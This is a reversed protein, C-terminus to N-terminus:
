WRLPAPARTDKRISGGASPVWMLTGSWELLTRRHVGVWAGLELAPLRSPRCVEVVSRRVERPRQANPEAVLAQVRDLRPQARKALGNRRRDLRGDLRELQVRRRQRWRIREPALRLADREVGLVRPGAPGDTGGADGGRRRVLLRRQQVEERMGALGAVGTGHDTRRTQDPGQPLVARRLQLFPEQRRQELGVIVAAM